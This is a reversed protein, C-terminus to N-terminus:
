AENFDRGSSRDPRDSAPYPQPPRATGAAGDRFGLLGPAPLVRASGHSNDAYARPTANRAEIAATMVAQVGVPEGPFGVVTAVPAAFLQM